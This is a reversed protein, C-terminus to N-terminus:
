GHVCVSRKINSGLEYIYEIVKKNRKLWAVDIVRSRHKFADITTCNLFPDIM